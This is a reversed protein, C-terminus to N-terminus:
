SVLCYLQHYVGQNDLLEKHTGAEVVRGKDLVFIKDAKKITSFRHAIVIVTKGEFLVDLEEKILGESKSDLASTAEDLLIIPPNKLFIRALEIRQYQGGSLGVGGEGIHSDYADPTSLIFDHASAAKAAAIIEEKTADLKGVRINEYITDNFIFPTQPVYGIIDRIENIGTKSLKNGFVSIDGAEQKYLGLLLKFITSKGGGSEGVIASVSGKVFSLNFEDLVYAENDGYRFTIDKFDISGKANIINVPKYGTAEKEEDLLEFIRKTGALSSHFNNIYSGMNIFLNTVKEQLVIVAMVTGIDTMDLSVMVAGVTLIGMFNMTSMLFNMSSRKGELDNLNINNSLAGEYEKTYYGSVKNELQFVKITRLGSLMDSFWENSVATHKQVRKSLEYAKQGFARNILVALLGFLAVIPVFRVDIIVLSVLSGVGLITSSVFDYTHERYFVSLRDIDSTLRTMIDGSHNKDLYSSPLKVINRVLNLHIDIIPYYLKGEYHYGAIPQVICYVFFVVAMIFFGKVLMETSQYQLSNFIYKNAFAFGIQYIPDIAACIVLSIIYGWKRKGMLNLVKSLDKLSFLRM